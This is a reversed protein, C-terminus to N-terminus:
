EENKMRKAKAEARRQEYVEECEPPRLYLPVIQAPTCFRGAAALERGLALVQRADPWWFEEGLADLGAARVAEAHTKLGDGVVVCPRPLSAIWAAAYYVGVNVPVDPGHM